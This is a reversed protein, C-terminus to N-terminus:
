IGGGSIKDIESKISVVADSIIGLLGDLRKKIPESFGILLLRIKASSSTQAQSELLAVEGCYQELEKLEANNYKTRESVILVDPKVVKILKWKEDDANKLTVLDVYRTHTVIELREDQPVIPRHPGKRRRIKEDSDVGVVLVANPLYLKAKALYRAHGIHFLDFAGSTLIIKKGLVRYAQVRDQLQECDLIYIQDFNPTLTDTQFM